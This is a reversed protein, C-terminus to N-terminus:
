AAGMVGQSAGRERRGAAPSTPVRGVGEDCALRHRETWPLCRRSVLFVDAHNGPTQTPCTLIVSGTTCGGLIGRLMVTWSDRGRKKKVSMISVGRENACSQQTGLPSEIHM